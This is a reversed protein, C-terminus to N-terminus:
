SGVTSQHLSKRKQYEIDSLIDVKGRVDFIEDLTKEERVKPQEVLLYPVFLTDKKTVVSPAMVKTTTNYVIKPISQKYSNSQQRTVYITDHIVDHINSHVTDNNVPMIGGYPTPLVGATIEQVGPPGISLKTTSIAISIGAIMFAISCIVTTFRRM